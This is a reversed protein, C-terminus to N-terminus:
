SKVTKWAAKPLPFQLFITALGAIGLLFCYFVYPAISLPSLGALSGAMLVQASYPLIGQFVCSFIDVLTAVRAAPVKHSKAIEQVPSGSLIIAVTNNATCIDSFSAIASIASEAMRPSAKERTQLRKALVLSFISFGENQKLLEGLGGMLISLILIEAM